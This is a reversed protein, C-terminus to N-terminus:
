AQLEEWHTEIITRVISNINTRKIQDPLTSRTKETDFTNFLREAQRKIADLTWEGRKISKVHHEADGELFVQITNNRALYIAGYLLRICHAANKIDYGLEKVIAERKTGMYGRKEFKEMRKLQAYAYGAFSEFLRRSLFEQRHEILIRGPRTIVLYHEPKLWLHQHVNPNGKMLLHCLKRIEHTEIDLTEGACTFTGKREPQYGDLGLYYDPNRVVIGFLDIDDTGRPEEPPIYTGHAHSGRYGSIIPNRAWVPSRENLAALLDDPIPNHIQTELKRIRALRNKATKTLLKIQEKDDM